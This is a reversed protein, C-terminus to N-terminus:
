KYENQIDIYFWKGLNQLYKEANEENMKRLTSFMIGKDGVFFLIFYSLHEKIEFHSGDYRLTDYDILDKEKKFDEFFLGHIHVLKAKSQNCLKPYNTDFQITDYM